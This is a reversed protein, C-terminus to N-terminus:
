SLVSRIRNGLGRSIQCIGRDEDADVDLTCADLRVASLCVAKGVVVILTGLEKLEAM